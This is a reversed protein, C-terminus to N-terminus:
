EGEAENQQAVVAFNLTVNFVGGSIENTCDVDQGELWIYVRIKTYGAELDFLKTAVTTKGDADYAIQNAAIEEFQTKDTMDLADSAQKVGYYKEVATGNEPIDNFVQVHKKANPEWVFVSVADGALEKAAAATSATGLNVFAVRAAIESNNATAGAVVSSELDLQFEKASDLKVYIDFAFFDGDAAETIKSTKLTKGDSQVEGTYMEMKGNVVKLASSVPNIEATPMQNTAVAELDAVPLVSKWALADASIQIGDAAQVNVEISEVSATNGLTFWAYSVSTLAIVSCLVAVIAPLLAKKVLSRKRM